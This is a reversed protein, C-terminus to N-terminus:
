VIIEHFLSENFKIRFASKESFLIADNIVSLIESSTICPQTLNQRMQSAPLLYAKCPIADVVEYWWIRCANVEFARRGPCARRHACSWDVDRLSVARKVVCSRLISNAPLHEGHRFLALIWSLYPGRFWMPFIRPFLYISTVHRAKLSDTALITGDVFIEHRCLYFAIRCVNTDNDTHISRLKEEWLNNNIQRIFAYLLLNWIRTVVILYSPSILLIFDIM